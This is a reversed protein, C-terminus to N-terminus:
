VPDGFFDHRSAAIPSAAAKPAVLVPTAAAAVPVLIGGARTYSQNAQKVADGTEQAINRIAENVVYDGFLRRLGAPIDVPDMRGSRIHTVAAVLDALDNAFEDQQDISEPWRDTFEDQDWTPNAVTLTRGLSTARRIDVILLNCLSILADSLTRGPMATRAAYHALLISPAMRGSRPKLDHTINRFRKVLQLALTAM